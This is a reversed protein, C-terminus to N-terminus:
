LGTRGVSKQVGDRRARGEGPKGPLTFSIRGVEEEGNGGARTKYKTGRKLALDDPHRISSM